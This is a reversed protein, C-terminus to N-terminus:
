ADRGPTMAKAREIVERGEKSVNALREMILPLSLEEEVDPRVAQEPGTSQFVPSGLLLLLLIKIM